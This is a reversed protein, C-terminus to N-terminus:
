SSCSCRSWSFNSPSSVRNYDFVHRVSETEPISLNERKVKQWRDEACFMCHSPHNRGVTGSGHQSELVAECEIQRFDIEGKGSRHRANEEPSGWASILACCPPGPGTRRCAAEGVGLCAERAPMPPQRAQAQLPRARRLGASARLGAPAAWAAGAGGARGPTPGASGLGASDARAPRITAGCPEAGM